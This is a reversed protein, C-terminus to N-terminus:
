DYDHPVPSWIFMVASFTFFVPLVPANALVVALLLCLGAACFRFVPGMVRPVRERSRADLASYFVALAEAESLPRPSAPRQPPFIDEAAKENSM